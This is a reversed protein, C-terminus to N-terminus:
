PKARAPPNAAVNLLALIQKLAALTEGGTVKFWGHTYIAQVAWHWVGLGITALSLGTILLSHTGASWQFHVGVSALGSLVIAVIRNLKSTEATLWPFWSAKKLQGVVFSIIAAVAVQTGVEM